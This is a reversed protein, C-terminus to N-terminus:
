VRMLSEELETKKRAYGRYGRAHEYIKKLVDRVGRIESSPINFSRAGGHPASSGGQKKAVEIVYEVVDNGMLHIDTVLAIGQTAHAVVDVTDIIEGIHDLTVNEVEIKQIQPQIGSYSYDKEGLCAIHIDAGGAEEVEKIKAVRPRTMSGTAPRELRLWPGDYALTVGTIYSYRTRFKGGDTNLLKGFINFGFDRLEQVKAALEQYEPRRFFRVLGALTESTIAKEYEYSVLKGNPQVFQFRDTLAQFFRPFRTEVRKCLEKIKDISSRYRAAELDSEQQRRRDAEIQTATRGYNRLSDLAYRMKQLYHSGACVGGPLTGFDAERYDELQDIIDDLMRKEEDSFQAELILNLQHEFPLRLM